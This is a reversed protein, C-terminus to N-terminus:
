FTGDWNEPIEVRVDGSMDMYYSASQPRNAEEEEDLEQRRREQEEDFDDDSYSRRKKKKKKPKISGYYSLVDMSKKMESDKKKLANWSEMIDRCEEGLRDVEELLSRVDNKKNEEM